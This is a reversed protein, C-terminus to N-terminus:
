EDSRAPTTPLTSVMDGFHKSVRGGFPHRFGKHGPSNRGSSPGAKTLPMHSFNFTTPQTVAPIAKKLRSPATPRCSLFTQDTYATNDRRTYLSINCPDSSPPPPPLFVAAPNITRLAFLTSISHTIFCNRFVRPVSCRWAVKVHALTLHTSPHTLYSTGLM